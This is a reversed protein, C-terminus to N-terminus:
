RIPKKAIHFRCAADGAAICATEEVRFEHGGSVWRLGEALIGVALHCCPGETHRGWCVACRENNWMYHDSFEELVVIQDSFRNFIGAFTEAGIKIKMGLPILRLALDAIGIVAEFDQLGYKFTARGAQMAIGKGGRPGYMEELAQQISSLEVFDFGPELDNPPYNNVRHRVGAFNLAASVGNRGLVDELGLLYARAMRNSYYYSPTNPNIRLLTGAM